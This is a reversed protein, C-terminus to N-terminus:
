VYYFRFKESSPTYCESDSPKNVKDLAQIELYSSFVDNQFSCRNGDEPIEEGEGSSPILDLKQFV